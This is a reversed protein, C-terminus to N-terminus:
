RSRGADILETDELNFEADTGVSSTAALNVDADVEEDTTPLAPLDRVVQRSTNMVAGAYSGTEENTAFFDRIKGSQLLGVARAYKRELFSDLLSDVAAVPPPTFATLITELNLPATPVNATYEGPRRPDSTLISLLDAAITKAQNRNAIFNQGPLLARTLAVDLADLDVDFGHKRLLQRSSTYTTLGEVLGEYQVAPSSRIEFAKGETNSPLGSALTLTTRNVNDISVAALGALDLVDGASVLNDFSLLNGSKDTAEFNAISGYVVGPSFGLESPGSVVELSSGRSSNSSSLVARTRTLQYPVDDESSVYPARDLTIPSLSVVSFTGSEVGGLTLRDGVGVVGSLEAATVEAAGSVTSLTGTAILETSVSGVLGAVNAEVFEALDTPSLRHETSSQGVMLGLEEHASEGIIQTTLGVTTKVFQSGVVVEPNSRSRPILVLRTPKEPDAKIQVHQNLTMLRWVNESLGTDVDAQEKQASTIVGAVDNDPSLDLIVTKVAASMVFAGAAVATTAPTFSVQTSLTSLDGRLQISGSTPPTVTTPDLTPVSVIANDADEVELIEWRDAPSGTTRLYGGVHHAALGIGSEDVGSWSGNHTVRWREGGLDVAGTITGTQLYRLDTVARSEFDSATTMNPFTILSGLNKFGLGVFSPFQASTLGGTSLVGTFTRGDVVVHLQDKTATLAFPEEAVAKLATGLLEDVDVSVSAGGDVALVLPASLPLPWPGQVSSVSAPSGTGTVRGFHKLNSPFPNSPSRVKVTRPDTFNAIADMATKSALATLVNKRSAAINDSDSTEPITEELESLNSRINVLATTAVKSPIDLDIYEDLLDRLSFISDLLKSHVKKMRDLNRKIVGRAEERPRVLSPANASVINNRHLGAFRDMLVDFRQAEPRDKVSGAADLSLLATNANSLITTDRVPAGIQGLHDLALLTDEVLRIEQLVLSLLTNRVLRALYFVSDNQLLFTLSASDLLQGYEVQTNLTGGERGPDIGSQFIRSVENLIEANTYNAM